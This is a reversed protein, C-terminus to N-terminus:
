STIEFFDLNFCYLKEEPSSERIMARADNICKVLYEKILLVDKEAISVVTSLHLNSDLDKNLSDVAKLRWNTHHQLIMNSDKGLFIRNMGPNYKGNSYNILGIRTLFELATNVKKIPLQLQKAISDKNRFEKITIM